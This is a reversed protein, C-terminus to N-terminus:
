RPPTCGLPLNGSASIVTCPTNTTGMEKSIGGAGLVAAPPTAPAATAAVAGTCSGQYTTTRDGDQKKTYQGCEFVAALTQAQQAAQIQQAIKVQAIVTADTKVESKQVQQQVQSNGSISAPPTPASKPSMTTYQGAPVIVSQGSQHTVTVSGATVAVGTFNEGKQVFTWVVYQTGRASAVATPTHIEFRSNTAAYFEAIVAMVKGKLMRFITSRKATKPDYIYETIEIRTNESVNLLTNDDFLIKTAAKPGTIIVDNPHVEQRLGAKRPAADSTTISVPGEVAIVFGIYSSKNQAWASTAVGLSATLLVIALFVKQAGLPKFATM